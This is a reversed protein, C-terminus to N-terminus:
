TGLRLPMKTQEPPLPCPNLNKGIKPRSTTLIKSPLSVTNRPNHLHFLFTASPPFLFPSSSPSSPGLTNLLCLIAPGLSQLTSPLPAFNYLHAFSIAIM